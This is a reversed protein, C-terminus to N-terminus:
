KRLWVRYSRADDPMTFLVQRIEGPLLFEQTSSRKGTMPNGKADYFDILVQTSDSGVQQYVVKIERVTKKKRTDEVQYDSVSLIKIQHNEDVVEPEKRDLLRHLERNLVTKFVAPEIFARVKCTVRRGEETQEVIELDQLSGSALTQIVAKIVTPDKVPSTDEVFVHYSEIAKRVAMTYAIQRAQDPTQQDGYTYQYEGLLKVREGEASGAEALCLAGLCVLSLIILPRSWDSFRFLSIIRRM